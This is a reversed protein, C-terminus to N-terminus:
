SLQEAMSKKEQMFSIFDQRGAPNSELQSKKQQQLEFL